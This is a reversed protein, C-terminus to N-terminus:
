ACAREADCCSTLTGPRARAGLAQCRGDQGEPGPPRRRKRATGGERVPHWRGPRKGARRPPATRHM